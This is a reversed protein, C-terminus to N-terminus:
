EKVKRRLAELEMDIADKVKPRSETAAPAASSPAALRQKMAALDDNVSNGELEKFKGEISDSGILVATSEAEAELSLVKEEMKDFAAFSSSSDLGGVLEQIQKSSQASAARAKLTEKKAKAESLKSEMARTNDLLQQMAKEQQDLQAKWTTMQEEFAKRKKLAERALEDEGAKVALEARSTWQDVAEKAQSYKAEIQKKSAIIKATAQRLKIIDSNMDTVAQELIREPDEAGEVITNAYSKFIRSVRSFLNAQVSVNRNKVALVRPRQAILAKRSGNRLQCTNSSLKQTSNM